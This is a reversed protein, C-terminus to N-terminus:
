NITTSDRYLAQYTPKLKFGVLRHVPDALVYFSEGSLTKLAQELTMLELTSDVEPLPQRLMSQTSPELYPMDALRYGSFQLVYDVAQKVTLINQPFKIQLRQQLLHEQAIEPKVTAALYRGVTVEEASSLQTCSLAACLLFSAAFKRTLTYM